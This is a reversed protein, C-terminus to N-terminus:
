SLQVFNPGYSKSKWEKFTAVHDRFEVKSIARGSENDCVASESDLVPAARTQQMRQLHFALRRAVVAYPCRARTCM